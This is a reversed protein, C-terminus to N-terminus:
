LIIRQENLRIIDERSYGLDLLIEENHQGLEPAPTKVSAPNQRFNLPSNIIKVTGAPHPLDVFFDNALAQPDNIVEAPTQVRSYILHHERCRREWEEITKSAFVEDLIRILEECNERRGAMSNFRPDNELEPREIAQCFASWHLDTSMSLLLWRDDRTRYVNHM